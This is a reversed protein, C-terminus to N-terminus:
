DATSPKRQRKTQRKTDDDSSSDVEEEDRLDYDPDKTENDDVQHVAGAVEEYNSVTIEDSPVTILVNEANSQFSLTDNQETNKNLFM